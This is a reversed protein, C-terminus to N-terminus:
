PQAGQTRRRTGPQARMGVRDDHRVERHVGEGYQRLEARMREDDVELTRPAGLRADFARTRQADEGALQDLVAHIATGIAGDHQGRGEAVDERALVAHRHVADVDDRAAHVDVAEGDGRRRGFTPAREAPGGVTGDHEAHAAEHSADAHVREDLRRVDQTRADGIREHQDGAGARESSSARTAESPRSCCTRKRPKRGSASRGVAYRAASRVTTGVAASSPNPSMVTSDSAAPVGHTTV